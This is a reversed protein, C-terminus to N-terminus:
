ATIKGRRGDSYVLGVGLDNLNTGTMGTGLLAGLADLVRYAGNAQLAALPDLGLRRARRASEGSVVAGAADTPGDVGDTALAMVTM